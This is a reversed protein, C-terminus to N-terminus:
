TGIISGGVVYLASRLLISTCKIQLPHTTDLIYGLQFQPARVEDIKYKLLRNSMLYISQSNTRFLVFYKIPFLLRSKYNNDRVNGNSQHKEDNIDLKNMFDVM